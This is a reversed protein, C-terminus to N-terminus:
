IISAKIKETRHVILQNVKKLYEPLEKLEDDLFTKHKICVCKGLEGLTEEDLIENLFLKDRNDDFWAKWNERREQTIFGDCNEKKLIDSYLLDIRDNYKWQCFGKVRNYNNDPCPMYNGVTHVNKCLEEMQESFADCWNKVDRIGANCLKERLAERNIIEYIEKKGDLITDVDLKQGITKLLTRIIQRVPFIADLWQVEWGLVGALSKNRKIVVDADSKAYKDYIFWKQVASMEKIDIIEKKYELNDKFDLLLIGYGEEVIKNKM